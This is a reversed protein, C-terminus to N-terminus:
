KYLLIFTHEDMFIFNRKITGLVCYAKNVKESIHDGITLNSDFRVGLDVMSKVKELSFLQNRDMIHYSTDISHKICCSVSKCKNINLRLLWEDVTYLITCSVLRTTNIVILVVPKIFIVKNGRNVVLRLFVVFV